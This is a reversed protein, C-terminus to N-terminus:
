KAGKASLWVLIATGVATAVQRVIPNSALKELRALVALQADQKADLEDVKEALTQRASVEVGLAAEHRFDASSTQTAIGRVRESNSRRWADIANQREEITGIRGKIVDLEVSVLSINTNTVTFGERMRESMEEILKEVSTSLTSNSM